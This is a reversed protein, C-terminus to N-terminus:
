KAYFCSLIHVYQLLRESYVSKHFILYFILLKRQGKRHGKVWLVQLGSGHSCLLPLCVASVSLAKKIKLNYHCLMYVFRSFMGAWTHAIEQTALCFYDLIAQIRLGRDLQIQFRQTVCSSM